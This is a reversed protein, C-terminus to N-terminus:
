REEITTTYVTYELLKNNTKLDLSLDAFEILSFFVLVHM